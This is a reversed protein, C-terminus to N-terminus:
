KSKTIETGSSNEFTLEIGRDVVRISFDPCANECQFCRICDEPREVEAVTGYWVSPNDVMELVNTPCVVVCLSCGKCLYLDIKVPPKKLPESM